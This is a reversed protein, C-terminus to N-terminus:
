KVNEGKLADQLLKLGWKSLHEASPKSKSETYYRIIPETGSPRILLWGDGRWIKLGDIDEIKDAIIKNKIKSLIEAKLENPCKIKRKIQYYKPLERILDSLKEGSEAICELIMLAGMAGDRVYQHPAYFIGGNEEGGILGKVKKLTRAVVISGVKTTILEGGMEETVDQVLKSSAIPTVVKASKKNKLLKKILLAFIVDGWHFIGKEDIFLVRDADGDHAIGMDAKEDIVTQKLLNLNEDNPEPDRGPFFGDIHSNITTVTCGVNQLLYPTVLGGVGNAPDVIVKLKAKKILEGNIKELIGKKYFDLVDNRVSYKGVKDWESKIFNNSFYRSEIKNEKEEPVEIGEMDSVKIGNFQAPNHSATIIVSGITKWNKSAYQIAPTPALGVDIVNVGTSLLGSVVANKLMTGSNRSDNGILVSGQKLESGIAMGIKLAFLPTMSVNVVGRIGNTGFLKGL